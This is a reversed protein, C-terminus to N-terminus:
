CEPRLLPRSPRSFESEFAERVVRSDCRSVAPELRRRIAERDRCHRLAAISAIALQPSKDTVHSVLFEIAEERQLLAIAVLLVQQDDPGRPIEIQSKLLDFAAHHRSEGIAIAAESRVAEDASELYKAVLPFSEDPALRLLEAFCEGMVEPVSDGLHVKLRLLPGSEVRNAWAIARVAGARAAKEKDALLDVLARMVHPYRSQVLGFGCVARLNAAKDEAPGFGSELQTYQIGRLYFEHDDYGVQRLAECIATKALCGKDTKVPDELFREYAALLAPVLEERKQEGTIRAAREVVLQSRHRLGHRLRQVADSDEPHEQCRRLADLDPQLSRAM